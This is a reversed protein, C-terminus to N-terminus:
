NGGPSKMSVTATAQAIAVSLENELFPKRLIVAAPDLIQGRLDDGTMIIHPVFGDKLIATMADIGNGERLHCDVIIMNPSKQGAAAIAGSQTATTACVTHGMEQLLDELLLAIFPEDEVLLIRLNQRESDIALTRRQTQM